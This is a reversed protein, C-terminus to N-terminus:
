ILKILNNELKIGIRYDGIRIRFYSKSNVIYKVNQVDYISPAIEIELISSKIRKLIEKDSINKLDKVLNKALEKEMM